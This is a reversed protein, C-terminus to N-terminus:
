FTHIKNASSENESGKKEAYRDVLYNRIKQMITKEDLPYGLEHFDDCLQGYDATFNVCWLLSDAKPPAIFYVECGLKLEEIAKNAIKELTARSLRM